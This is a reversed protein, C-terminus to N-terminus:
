KKTCSDSGQAGAHTLSARCAPCIWSPTGPSPRLEERHHHVNQQPEVQHEAQQVRLVALPVPHDGGVDQPALVRGLLQGGGGAPWVGPGEGHKLDKTFTKKDTNHIWIPFSSGSGPALFNVYELNAVSVM